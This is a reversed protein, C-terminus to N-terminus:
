DPIHALWDVAFGGRSGYQKDRSHEQHSGQLIGVVPVHSMRLVLWVVVFWVVDQPSGASMVIGYIPHTARYASSGRCKNLSPLRGLLPAVKTSPNQFETLM